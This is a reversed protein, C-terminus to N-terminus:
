GFTQLNLHLCFIFGRLTEYMTEKKWKILIKFHTREENCQEVSLSTHLVGYNNLGLHILSIYMGLSSAEITLEVSGCVFKVKM